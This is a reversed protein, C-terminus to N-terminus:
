KGPNDKRLEWVWSAGRKIEEHCGASGGERVNSFKFIHETNTPGMYAVKHVEGFHLRTMGGSHQIGLLWCLAPPLWHEIFITNICLHVCAHIASSSLKRGSFNGGFVPCMCIKKGQSSAWSCTPSKPDGYQCGLGVRETLFNLSRRIVLLQPWEGTWVRSKLFM